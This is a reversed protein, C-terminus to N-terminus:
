PPPTTVKQVINYNLYDERLSRIITDVAPLSHEVIQCGGGQCEDHGLTPEQSISAM